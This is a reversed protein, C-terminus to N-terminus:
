KKVYTRLRARIMCVSPLLNIYQYLGFVLHVSVLGAGWVSSSAMSRRPPLRLVSDKIDSYSLSRSSPMSMSCASMKVPWSNRRLCSSNRAALYGVVIWRRRSLAAGDVNVLFLNFSFADPKLVVHQLRIGERRLHVREAIRKLSHAERSLAPSGRRRVDSGLGGGGLGAGGPRGPPSPCLAPVDSNRGRVRRSGFGEAFYRNGPRGTLHQAGYGVHRDPLLPLAM